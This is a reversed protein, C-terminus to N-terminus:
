KLGKMNLVRIADNAANQEAEKKSKGTGTGLLRSGHLANVTYRKSHAPGQEDVIEYVIPIKSDQQVLEQLHTKSDQYKFNSELAEIESGLWSIIFEAADSFSADLYIAGILAEFADSLVSPRDRGGSGAEGKGMRLQGGLGLRRAAKALTAECVASARFKTLEGESLDPYNNYLYSSVTLELVADGLFELRENSVSGPNENLYSSHTLAETLLRPNKFNYGITFGNM